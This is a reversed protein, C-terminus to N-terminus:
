RLRQCKDKLSKLKIAECASKKAKGEQVLTYYSLDESLSEYLRGTEDTGFLAPCFVLRVYSVKDMYKECAMESSYYKYGLYTGMAMKSEIEEPAKQHQSKKLITVGKQFLGLDEKQLGLCIDQKTADLTSCDKKQLGECVDAFDKETIKSCKGEAMHRFNLLSTASKECHKRDPDQACADLKGERVAQYQSLVVKRRQEALGKVSGIEKLDQQALLTLPLSLFVGLFLWVFKKNFSM